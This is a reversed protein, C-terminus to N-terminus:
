YWHAAAAVLVVNLLIFAVTAIPPTWRDIQRAAATKGARYLHLAVVAAAAFLLFSLLALVHIGGVLSLGGLGLHDTVDLLNIVVVFVAGALLGVRDLIEDIAVLFITLGLVFALYVPMVLLVAGGISERTLATAIRLQSYTSASRPGLSPDGFSTAYRHRHSEVDFGDLKWGNAELTEVKSSHDPVYVLKTIDAEGDELVIPLTHRDFPYNALDWEYRFTGDVLVQSWWVGRLHQPKQALSEDPTGNANVFEVSDLPEIARTPCDAWLWFTAGFTGDTYDFSRLSKVYAGIRCRSPAASAAGPWLAAAAIFCVTLLTVPTV